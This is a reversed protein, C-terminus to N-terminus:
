KNMYKGIIFGPLINKDLEEVQYINKLYIFKQDFEMLYQSEFYQYPLGLNQQDSTASSEETEENNNNENQQEESKNENNPENNKEKDKKESNPEIKEKNNNKNENNDKNNSIDKNRKEEDNKDKNEENVQNENNKDQEQNENNNETENEEENEEDTTKTLCELFIFDTKALEEDTLNDIQLQDFISEEDYNIKNKNRKIMYKNMKTPNIKTKKYLYNIIDGIPYELYGIGWLNGVKDGDNKVTKEEIKNFDSKGEEEKINSDPQYINENQNMPTYHDIVKISRPFYSRYEPSLNLPQFEISFFNYSSKEKKEKEINKNEEGKDDDEEEEEEEEPSAENDDYILNQASLLIVNSDILIGCGYIIQQQGTKDELFITKVLGFLLFPMKNVVHANSDDVLNDYLSHQKGLEKLYETQNRQNLINYTNQQISEKIVQNLQLQRKIKLRLAKDKIIFLDGNPAYNQNFM